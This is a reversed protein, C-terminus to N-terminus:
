LLNIKHLFSASSFGHSVLFLKLSTRCYSWFINVLPTSFFPYTYFNKKEFIHHCMHLCYANTEQYYYKSFFVTYHTTCYVLVNVWLVKYSFILKHYRTRWVDPPHNSSGKAFIWKPWVTSYYVHHYHSPSFNWLLFLSSRIFLKNKITFFSTM